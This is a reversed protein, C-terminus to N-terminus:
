KSLETGTSRHQLAPLMKELNKVTKRNIFHEIKEVQELENDTHNLACFFDHLVKHRHLLYHGEEYGKETVLISGYKRFDIYGARRLNELMKSASSPRVHLSGALRSVRIPLGEAEMRCIMELYDEMSSTMSEGNSREYRKQTYFGTQDMSAENKENKEDKGTVM